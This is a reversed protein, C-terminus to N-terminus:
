GLPPNITFEGDLLRNLKKLLRGLKKVHKKQEAISYVPSDEGKRIQWRLNRRDQRYENDVMRRLTALEWETLRPRITKGLEAGFFM